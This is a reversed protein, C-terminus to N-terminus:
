LIRSLASAVRERLRMWWSRERFTNLRIEEAYSLDALFVSDM